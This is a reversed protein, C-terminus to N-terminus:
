GRHRWPATVTSGAVWADGATEADLVVEAGGIWVDGGAKGGVRVKAGGAIVRSEGEAEIDVTAGFRRLKGDDAHALGAVLGSVVLVAILFTKRM